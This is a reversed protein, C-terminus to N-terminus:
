SYSKPSLAKQALSLSFSNVGVRKQQLSCMRESARDKVALKVKSNRIGMSYGIAKWLLIGSILRSLFCVISSVHAM